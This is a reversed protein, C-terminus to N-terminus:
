WEVYEELRALGIGLMVDGPRFEAIAEAVHVVGAPRIRIALANWDVDEGGVQLCPPLEPQAREEAHDLREAVRRVPGRGPVGQLVVQEVDRVAEPLSGEEQEHLDRGELPGEQAPTVLALPAPAIVGLPWPELEEGLIADEGEGHDAELTDLEGAGVIDLTVQRDVETVPTRRRGFGPPRHMPHAGDVDGVRSGRRAPSREVPLVVM